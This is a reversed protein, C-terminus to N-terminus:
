PTVLFDIELETLSRGGVEAPGVERRAVEIGPFVYPRAQFGSPAEVAFHLTIPTKSLAAGHVAMVVAHEASHYGSKWQNCKATDDDSWSWVWGGERNIGPVVERVPRTTDVYDSIWAAGTKELWATYRGVEGGALEVLNLTAGFQDAEAYIWWDSGYEVSTASTPRKAWRGNDPDYARGLADDAHSALLDGFQKDGRHADILWLAWFAKLAHGFDVHKTNYQGKKNSVGWFFGDQFFHEVLAQGLVALDGELQARRADDGMAPAAHVLFATVADLQAVLEWGGDGEVDVESDMADNMADRIRGNEADWYLAEDFLMDRIELIMEVAGPDRTVFAYLAPGLAVYAADQSTKADAGVGNGAADLRAHWGGEDTDKAHERLWQVGAHAYELLQEDGTLLYGASYAFIQRSIMRPRREAGQVSGDMGRYTPFNGLPEGLAEPATWYPLVDEQMHAVWRAPELAAPIAVPEPLEPGADPTADPGADAPDADPQPGEDAGADAEGVDTTADGAADPQAVDPARSGSESSCAALALALAIFVYRSWHRM